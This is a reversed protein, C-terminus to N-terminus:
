VEGDDQQQGLDKLMEGNHWTMGSGFCFTRLGFNQLELSFNGHIGKKPGLSTGLVDGGGGGGGGGV